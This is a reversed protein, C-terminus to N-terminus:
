QSVSTSIITSLTMGPKMLERGDDIRIKIKFVTNERAEDTEVNRPTFESTPSIFIIRGSIKKHPFAISELPLTMGTSIFSLYKQPVYMVVYLFTLDAISCVSSGPSIIAGKEVITELCTGDITSKIQYKSLLLQAQSLLAESAALDAHAADIVYQSPGSKLLELQAQAQVLAAETALLAHNTPGAFLLDRDAKAAALQNNATNCQVKALDLKLKLEDLDISTNSDTNADTIPNTNTETDTNTNINSNIKDDATSINAKAKNYLSELYEYNLRASELANEAINVYANAKRIVETGAGAKLEDLRSRAVDVAAEAKIIEEQRTGSELEKLRARRAEVQAQQILVSMEQTEADLLFLIQGEAVDQGEEINAKLVKGGVESKIDLVQAEVTGNLHLSNNDSTSCGSLPIIASSFMLLAIFKSICKHTPIFSKPINLGFDLISSYSPKFKTTM